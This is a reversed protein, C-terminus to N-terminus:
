RRRRENHRLRHIHRSARDQHRETRARERLTVAGDTRAQGRQRDIRHQEARLLVTEGRSLSGDRVGRNVRVDQRVDRYSDRTQAEALGSSALVPVIFLSSILLTRFM